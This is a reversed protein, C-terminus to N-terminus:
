PVDPSGLRRRSRKQAEEGIVRAAAEMPGSLTSWGENVFSEGDEIEIVLSFGNGRQYVHVTALKVRESM